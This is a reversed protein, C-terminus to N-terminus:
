QGCPEWHALLIGLDNGDVSGDRNLDEPTGAGSVPGWHSLLAALDAGDVRQDVYLDGVCCAALEPHAACECGDPINNGNQDPLASARIQGYDILGDNNCDASWEFLALGWDPVQCDGFAVVNVDGFRTWCYM